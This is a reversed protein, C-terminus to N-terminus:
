RFKKLVREISLMGMELKEMEPGFSIRSYNKYRRVARRRAPNVDFFIGPVTIVKEKLGEEFFGMGDNLPEPLDALNTWVYFGGEPEIEIIFGLERLRKLVYDKKNTFHQHIALTEQKSMEIDLLTACKMQFPHNAGGDLFSGASTVTEIVSRPGLTWSMRWGPYRWNKTLGDVIIVPDVNVDEVFAAASITNEEVDPSKSFIYHSYFEDFIMSCELDYAMEVWSKLNEGSIVKGTPNCPNSILLARLGRGMVETKLKEATIQYASSLELLIPISTFAKFIGLLEEYATYDPLFHGMNINGLAAAIRSLAIRGGGSISVNEYTYQSKKGKRFIENYYSAVKKRLEINGSVSSYSNQSSHIKVEEIRKPAGPIQGTEPSGQGLNAWDPAGSVFGLEAARKTVYIVGTEPVSRFGPIANKLM